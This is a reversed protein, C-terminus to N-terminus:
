DMIIDIVKNQQYLKTKDYDIEIISEGLSPILGM